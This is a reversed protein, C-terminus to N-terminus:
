KKLSESTVEKTQVPQAFKTPPSMEDRLSLITKDKDVSDKKLDNLDEKLQEANSKKNQKLKRKQNKSTSSGHSSQSQNKQKELQNNLDKIEEQLKKVQAALETNKKQLDNENQTKATIVDAQAGVVCAKKSKKNTETEQQLKGNLDNIKEGNTAIIQEKNKLQEKLTTNEEQLTQKEKELAQKEGKLSTNENSNAEIVKEQGELQGKLITIKDELEQKEKELYQYAEQDDQIAQNATQIAQDKEAITDKVAGIILSAAICLLSFGVLSPIAILWIKRDTFKLLLPIAVANAVIFLTLTSLGYKRINARVVVKSSIDESELM